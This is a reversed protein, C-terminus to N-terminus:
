EQTLVEKNLCVWGRQEMKTIRYQITNPHYMANQPMLRFQKKTCDTYAGSISEAFENNYFYVGSSSLDVQTLVYEINKIQNEQSEKNYISEDLLYPTEILQVKRYSKFYTRVSIDVTNNTNDSINYQSYYGNYQSNNENSSLIKYDNAILLNHLKALNNINSNNFYLIDIDNINQKAIIDRVSGGFIYAYESVNFIQNVNFTLYQTLKDHITENLTQIRLNESEIFEDIPINLETFPKKIKYDTNIVNSLNFTELEYLVDNYSLLDGNSSYRPLKDPTNINVFEENAIVGQAWEGNPLLHEWQNSILNKRIKQKNM